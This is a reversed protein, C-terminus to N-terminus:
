DKVLKAAEAISSKLKKALVRVHPEKMLTIHNGPIQQVDLGDTVLDGWGLTPHKKIYWSQYESWFLTAKGAFTQPQYAKAAQINCDLVKVLEPTFIELDSLTAVVEDRYVQSKPNFLKDFIYNFQEKLTMKQMRDIQIEIWERFPTSLEAIVPCRIDVLGL